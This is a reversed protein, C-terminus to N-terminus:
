KFFKNFLGKGKKNDRKNEEYEDDDEEDEDYEDDEDDDEDEEDEDYEDDDEDEEDEDYEDDDEEYEEDYEDDDEEYEEDYEDDDEEYEYDDEYEEDNDEEYKESDYGNDEDYENEKHRVDDEYKEHNLNLIRKKFIDDEEIANEFAEDINESEELKYESLDKEFKESIEKQFVDYINKIEEIRWYNSNIITGAKIKINNVEEEFNKEKEEISKLYEKNYQEKYAKKTSKNAIEKLILDYLKDIQEIDLEFKECADEMLQKHAKPGNIATMRENDLFSVIYMKEAKLFALKVSVDRLAKNYKELKMDDNNIEVLIKRMREFITIYCEAERKAIENRVKIAKEIVKENFPMKEDKGNEIMIEAIEQKEKENESNVFEKLKKIKDLDIQKIDEGSKKIILMYNSEEERRSRSYKNREIQKENFTSLSQIFQERLEILRNNNDNLCEEIKVLKKEITSSNEDLSDFLQNRDDEYKANAKYIKKQEQQIKRIENATEDFENIVKDEEDIINQYKQIEEVIERYDKYITKLNIKKDLGCINDFYKELVIASREYMEFTRRIKM